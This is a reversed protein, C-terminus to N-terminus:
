AHRRATFVLAVSVAENFAVAHVQTLAVFWFLSSAVKKETLVSDNVGDFLETRDTFGNSDSLSRAAHVAAAPSPSPRAHRNTVTSSRRRAFRHRARLLNISSDRRVRFWRGGGGAAGYRDMSTIRSTAAANSIHAMGTKERPFVATYVSIM